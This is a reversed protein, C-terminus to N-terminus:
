RERFMEERTMVLCLPTHVKCPKLQYFEMDGTQSDPGILVVEEFSFPNNELWVAIEKVKIRFSGQLPIILSIKSKQYQSHEKLFEIFNDTTVPSYKGKGLFKIQIPRVISTREDKPDVLM